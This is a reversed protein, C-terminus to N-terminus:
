KENQLQHFVDPSVIKEKLATSKLIAFEESSMKRKILKLLAIKEKNTSASVLSDIEAGSIGRIVGMRFKKILNESQNKEEPSNPLGGFKEKILERELKAKEFITLKETKLAKEVYKDVLARNELTNRAQESQINKKVTNLQETVGYDSVRIFRGAINSVVPLNLAEGLSGQAQPQSSAGFKFFIGGGVNNFVYGLFAKDTQWNNAKYLDDSLVNRGRYSDYPNKGSLYQYIDDTTSLTPSVSPIQGGLFSFIDSLQRGLPEQKKPDFIGLTKWLSAGIFRGTEDDPVRLYIAKGTEDIGLHVITYNSKDYESAKDMLDEMKKGFLGIGAM